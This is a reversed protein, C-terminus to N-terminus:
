CRSSGPHARGNGSRPRGGYVLPRSTGQRRVSAMRGWGPHSRIGADLLLERGEQRVRRRRRLSSRTGRGSRRVVREGLLYRDGPRRRRCARIGEDAGDVLTTELVRWGIANTLAELEWQVAPEDRFRQRDFARAAIIAGLRGAPIIPRQDRVLRQQLELADPKPNSAWSEDRDQDPRPARVCFRAGGLSVVAEILEATVVSKSQDSSYQMPQDDYSRALNNAFIELLVDITPDSGREDGLRTLLELDNMPRRWSTGVTLRLAAMVVPDGTEVQSELMRSHATHVRADEFGLEALQLDASDFAVAIPDVSTAVEWWRNVFHSTGRGDTHQRVLYVPDLLKSLCTRATGVDVTSIDHISDIIESITPDKHGGYSALLRCARQWCEAVDDSAGAAACIKAIALEFDAMIAYQTNTDQRRERITNLVAHVAYTGIRDSVRSLVGLLDNFTLPGNEPLGFNTTTTTGDGIAILHDLVEPLDDQQVVAVSREFVEHVLSHISYLDCARPSGTFPEAHSALEALAVRVTTSADEASMAGVRVDDGLGITATAYRLWARYFGVGTLQAACRIPLTRDVRHALYLLELWRRVRGEKATAGDLVAETVQQLDTELDSTALGHLVDTVAIGHALLRDVGVTPARVWAERALETRAPLGLTGAVALDALALYTRAAKTPDKMAAPVERVVGPPLGAAFVGVLDEVSAPHDQELFAAVREALDDPIDGRQERLRLAGLQLALQLEAEHETGYATNERTSEIDFADIYIKWPAAAGASDLAACLRLGWRAPFTPRGEHVLREVVVDADVASVVVDAYQVISDVLSESEYTDISKRFEVCRILSPWDLREAGESAIMGVVRLMAEPPQLAQISRAIFGPRLLEKLEDYRGLQAFLAPLHRYARSDNFFGRKSLWEAVSERISAAWEADADRLIHRGFSEHHIRLGGIGPQSNLVPALRALATGLLPKATPVIEGLEDASVAFDCLALISVAYTMDGTLGDLLHKYYADLDSATVPIERLQRILDKATVPAARGEGLPSSRSAHRCLYTGYLANGGSRALLLEVVTRADECEEVTEADDMWAFLGHKRALVTIEKWSMPPVVVRGGAKAEVSALHSGPQSAIVACVGPPLDMATLGDVLSRSPDTAHATNRGRVRDVHDLGDIILLM